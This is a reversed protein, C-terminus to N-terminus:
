KGGVLGLILAQAVALFAIVKAEVLLSNVATETSAVKKDLTVQNVEAASIMANLFVLKAKIPTELIFLDRVEKTISVIRYRQLKYADYSAKVISIYLAAIIIVLVVVVATLVLRQILSEGFVKSIAEVAAQQFALVAATLITASGLVFGAKSDLANIQSDQVSLKNQALAFLVDITATHYGWKEPQNGLSM